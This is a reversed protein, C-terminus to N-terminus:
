KKPNKRKYRRPGAEIDSMEIKLRVIERDLTLLGATAEAEHRVPPLYLDFARQYRKMMTDDGVRLHRAKEIARM